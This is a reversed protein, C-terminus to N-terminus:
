LRPFRMKRLLGERALLCQVCGSTAQLFFTRPHDRRAARRQLLPGPAVNFINTFVVYLV